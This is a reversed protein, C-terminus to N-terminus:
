DEVHWALAKDAEDLEERARRIFEKTHYKSNLEVAHYLFELSNNIERIKELLEKDTM